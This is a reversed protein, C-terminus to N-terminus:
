LTPERQEVQFPEVVLYREKCCKRRGHKFGQQLPFIFSVAYIQSFKEQKPGTSRERETRAKQQRFQQNTLFDIQLKFELTFEDPDM